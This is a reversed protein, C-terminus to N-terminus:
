SSLISSLVSKRARTCLTAFLLFLLLCPSRFLLIARALSRKELQSLVLKDKMHHAPTAISLPISGAIGGHWLLFGTYASAILLRYDTDTRQRAVERAIVGLVLGFGWNIWCAIASIVTMMIIASGASKHAKALAVLINQFISKKGHSSGCLLVM